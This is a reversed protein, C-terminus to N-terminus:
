PLLRFLVTFNPTFNTSSIHLVFASDNMKCSFEWYVKGAVLTLALMRSLVIEPSLVKFYEVTTFVNFKANFNFFIFGVNMMPLLILLLVTPILM